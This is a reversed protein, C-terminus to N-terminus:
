LFEHYGEGIPVRCSWPMFSTATRIDHANHASTKNRETWDLEFEMGSNKRECIRKSSATRLDSELGDCFISSGRMAVRLLHGSFLKIEEVSAM